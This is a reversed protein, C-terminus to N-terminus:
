ASPSPTPPSKWGSARTPYYAPLDCIRDFLASGAEDYFHVPPIRKPRSSLGERVDSALDIAPSAVRVVRMRDRVSAEAEILRESRSPIRQIALTQRM